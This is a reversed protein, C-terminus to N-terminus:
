TAMQARVEAPEVQVLEMQRPFNSRTSYRHSVPYEIEALYFCFCSFFVMRLFGTMIYYVHIFPYAHFTKDNGLRGLIKDYISFILCCPLLYVFIFWFFCLFLYRGSENM